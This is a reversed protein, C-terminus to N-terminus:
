ALWGACISSSGLIPPLGRPGDPPQEAGVGERLSWLRNSEKSEMNPTPRCAGSRGLPIELSTPIWRTSLRIVLGRGADRRSHRDRASYSQGSLDPGSWPRVSDRPGLPGVATRDAGGWIRGELWWRIEVPVWCFWEVLPTVGALWVTQWSGGLPGILDLPIFLLAIANSTLLALLSAAIARDSSKSVMSFLVGLAAAYRAYIILGAAAALVGLPHVFGTALGIGM